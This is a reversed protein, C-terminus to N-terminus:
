QVKYSASNIESPLMGAKWARVKLDMSQSLRVVAGSPLEPDAEDPTEGNQTYRLTAGETACTIRILEGTPYSGSELSFVPKQAQSRVSGPILDLSAKNNAYSIDATLHEEDVSLVFSGGGPPVSLAPLDLAVQALAGPALIPVPATALAAGGASRRLTVSTIPTAPMGRNLVVAVVRASGNSAVDASGSSVSLDSGGLGVALVNNSVDNESITQDPDAKAFLRADAIADPLTFRITFPVSQGASLWGTHSQRSIERGGADPDGLYFAITPREIALEGSNTLAVAIEVPQGPLLLAGRVTLSGAALALDRTLNRNVIRLDVRKPSSPDIFNSALTLQGNADWVAAM